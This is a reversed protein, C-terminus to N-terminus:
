EGEMIKKIETDITNEMAAIAPKKAKAMAKKIPSHGDMYTTGREVSRAVMQNPQGKPWRQTKLGNYGSFGIKVDIVGDTERMPAVGLSDILGKKQYTTPGKAKDSETGWSNDVPLAKLEERIADAVIGAGTYLAREIVQKRLSRELQNLRALYESGADIEIKAM